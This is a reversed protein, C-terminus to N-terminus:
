ACMTFARRTSARRMTTLASSHHCPCQQLAHRFRNSCLGADGLPMCAISMTRSHLHLFQATRYPVSSAPMDQERRERDSNHTTHSDVSCQPKSGGGGTPLIRKWSCKLGLGGRSGQVNHLCSLVDHSMPVLTRKHESPSSYTNDARRIASSPPM